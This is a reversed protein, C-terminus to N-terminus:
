IGLKKLTIQVFVFISTFSAISAWFHLLFSSAPLLLAEENENKPPAEWWSGDEWSWADWFHFLRSASLDREQNLKLLGDFEPNVQGSVVESYANQPIIEVVPM